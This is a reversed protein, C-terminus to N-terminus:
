TYTATDEQVCDRAPALRVAVHKGCKDQPQTGHGFHVASLCPIETANRTVQRGGAYGRAFNKLRTRVERSWRSTTTGHDSRPCHLVRELIAVVRLGAASTGCNERMRARVTEIQYCTRNKVQEVPRSSAEGSRYCVTQSLVPCPLIMYLCLPLLIYSLYRYVRTRFM